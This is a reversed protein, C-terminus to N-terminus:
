LFILASFTVNGTGCNHLECLLDLGGLKILTQFVRNFGLLSLSPYTKTVSKSLPWLQTCQQHHRPSSWPVRLCTLRGKELFVRAAKEVRKTNRSRSLSMPRNRCTSIFVAGASTQILPRECVTPIVSSPPPISGLHLTSSLLRPSASSRM